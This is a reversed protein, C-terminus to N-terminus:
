FLRIYPTVPDLHTDENVIRLPYWMRLLILVKSWKFKVDFGLDKIYTM